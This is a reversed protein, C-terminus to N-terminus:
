RRARGSPRRTQQRITHYAIASLTILGAWAAPPVPIMPHQDSAPDYADGPEFAPSLAQYSLPHASLDLDIVLAPVTETSVLDSGDHLEGQPGGQLGGQLGGQNGAQSGLQLGVPAVALDDVVVQPGAQVLAPSGLWSFSGCLICGTVLKKM